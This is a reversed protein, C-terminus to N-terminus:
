ALCFQYQWTDDINLLKCYMYLNYNNIFRKLYKRIELSVTKLYM